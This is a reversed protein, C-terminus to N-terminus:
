WFGEFAEHPKQLINKLHNKFPMWTELGTSHWNFIVFTWPSWAGAFHCFLNFFNLVWGHLSDGFSGHARLCRHSWNYLKGPSRLLFNLCAGCWQLTQERVRSLHDFATAHLHIKLSSLLSVLVWSKHTDRPDYRTVFTPNVTIIWFCLLLRWLPLAWLWWSCFLRPLDPTKEIHLPNNAM